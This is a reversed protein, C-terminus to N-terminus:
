LPVQQGELPQSHGIRCCDQNACVIGLDHVMVTAQEAIRERGRSHSGGSSSRHHVKAGSVLVVHPVVKATLQVLVEAGRISGGYRADKSVDLWRAPRLHDGHNLRREPFRIQRLLLPLRDGTNEGLEAGLVLFACFRQPEQGRVLGHISVSSDLGRQDEGVQARPM